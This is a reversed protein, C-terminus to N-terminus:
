HRCEEACLRCAETCRQCHLEPFRACEDGCATCIEACVRCLEEVFPSERSMLEAATWCVIACDRNLRICRVRQAADLETLCADGCAECARACAICADICAVHEQQENM